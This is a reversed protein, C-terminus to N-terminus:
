EPALGHNGAGWTLLVSVLSLSGAFDFDRRQKPQPSTNKQLNEILAPQSVGAVHRKELTPAYQM